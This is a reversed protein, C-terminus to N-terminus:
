RWGWNLALPDAIPQGSTFRDLVYPALDASSAQGDAILEAISAGVVPATKFGTGSFGCALYFGDPGAAGIIAHQDPTLGDHGRQTSQISGDLLGPIRRCIRETLREAFGAAAVMSGEDPPGGIVNDDQLAALTLEHGETRFYMSNIDDIVAPHRNTWGGPRRIYATDHRWTEIPIDLGVMRGVAAAWPGAANIVIPTAIPGQSTGVGIVRGGETTVGLVTCGQSFTAGLETAAALFGATTGSPDAYGSEPEYGAIEFDDTVLGPALRRVDDATILMTPIGIRQQMAVNARLRDAEDPREIQIFGTRVYACDGRGVIESWARFYEFSAWALRADPEFEYHLRIFGSSRGTAGSARSSKDVVHARIGRKALHFAISAGNVGAGIVVADATRVM